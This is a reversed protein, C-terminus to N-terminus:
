RRRFKDMAADCKKFAALAEKLGQPADPSAVVEEVSCVLNWLADDYAQKTDEAAMAAGFIGMLDDALKNGTNSM